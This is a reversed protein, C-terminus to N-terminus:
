SPWGSASTRRTVPSTPSRSPARCTSEPLEVKRMEFKPMEFEPLKLQSFDPLEFKPLDSLDIRPFSPM